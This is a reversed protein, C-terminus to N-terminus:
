RRHYVKTIKGTDVLSFKYYFQTTRHRHDFSHKIRSRQNEMTKQSMEYQTYRSRIVFWHAGESFNAEEMDFDPISHSIYSITKFYVIFGGLYGKCSWIALNGRSHWLKLILLPPVQCLKM